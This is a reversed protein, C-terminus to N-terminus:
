YVIPWQQETYVLKKLDKPEYGALKAMKLFWNKYDQKLNRQLFWLYQKDEGAIVAAEYQDDNDGKGKLAGIVYYGGRFPEFFSVEFAGPIDTKYGTGSAENWRKKESDFGRNEVLVTRKEKDKLKYNATVNKMSDPEFFSPFRAMEYWQGQFFTEPDLNDVLRGYLSSNLLATRRQKQLIFPYLYFIILLLVILVVFIIFLISYWKM